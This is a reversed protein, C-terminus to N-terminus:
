KSLWSRMEHGDIARLVRDGSMMRVTIKAGKRILKRAVLQAEYEDRCEIIQPGYVIQWKPMAAVAALSAESASALLQAFAREAAERSLGVLKRNGVVAPGRRVRDWVMWDTANGARILFRPMDAATM